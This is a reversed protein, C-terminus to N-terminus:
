NLIYNEFRSSRFEFRGCRFQEAAFITQDGLEASRNEELGSQGEGPDLVDLLPNRVDPRDKESVDSTVLYFLVRVKYTGLYFVHNNRSIKPLLFLKLQIKFTLIKQAHGM